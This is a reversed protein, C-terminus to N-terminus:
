EDLEGELKKIKEKLEQIKNEKLKKAKIEKRKQKLEELQKELNEIKIDLETKPEKIKEVKLLKVNIGIDSEGIIEFEHENKLM